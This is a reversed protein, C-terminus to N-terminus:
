SPPANHALAPPDRRVPLGIAVLLLILPMVPLRFRIQSISGPVLYVLKAPGRDVAGNHTEDIIL